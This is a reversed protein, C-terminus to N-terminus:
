KRIDVKPGLGDWVVRGGYAEAIPRVPIYARGEYIRASGILKGNFFAQKQANDWRIQVGFIGGMVALAGYAQGDFLRGTEPTQIAAGNVTLQVPKPPESITSSANEPPKTPAVGRMEALRARVDPLFRKNAAGKTNGDGWWNRGPCPKSSVGPHYDGIWKGSATYWAHYVIHDTDVPLNLKDALAAYVEIVSAKHAATMSDLKATKDAVDFNGVNEVCIAGTNAYGIGAPTDNLGRGRSIVITGDELTTINQGIERWGMDKMHYRRMAEMTELQQDDKRTEYNPKYTHHVQLRTISRTIKQTQLWPRFEARSMFIFHDTVLM